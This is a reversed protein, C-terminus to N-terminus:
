GGTKGNAPKTTIARLFADLQKEVLTMREHSAKVYNDVTATLDIMREALRNESKLLINFLERTAPDM